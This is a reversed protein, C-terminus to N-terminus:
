PVYPKQIPPYGILDDFEFTQDTRYHYCTPRQKSNQILQTSKAVLDDNWDDKIRFYQDLTMNSLTKPLQIKPPYNPNYKDIEEVNSMAMLVSPLLNSFCPLFADMKPYYSVFANCM